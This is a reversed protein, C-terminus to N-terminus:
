VEVNMYLFLLVVDFMEDCYFNIVKILIYFIM